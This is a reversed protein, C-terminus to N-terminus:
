LKFSVMVRVWSKSTTTREEVISATIASSPGAEQLCESGSRNSGFLEVRHVRGAAQRRRRRQSSCLCCSIFMKGCDLFTNATKQTPTTSITPSTLPTHIPSSNTGGLTIGGNSLLKPPPVINSNM